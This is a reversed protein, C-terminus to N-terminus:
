RRPKLRVTPLEPAPLPDGDYGGVTGFPGDPDNRAIVDSQWRQSSKKITSSDHRSPDSM